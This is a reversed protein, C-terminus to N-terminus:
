KRIPQVIPVGQIRADISRATITKKGDKESITGTVEAEKGDARQGLIVGAWGYVYYVVETKKGTSDKKIVTLTANAIALNPKEGISGIEGMANVMGSITAKESAPQDSAEAVNVSLFATLGAGAVALLLLAQRKMVIRRM